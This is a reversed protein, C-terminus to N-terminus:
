TRSACERVPGRGGGKAVWGHLRGQLEARCVLEALTNATECLQWPVPFSVLRPCLAALERLLQAKSCPFLM